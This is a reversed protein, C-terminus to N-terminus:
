GIIRREKYISLEREEMGLLQRFVYDNDEGLGPAPRWSASFNEPCKWPVRDSITRGLLPHEVEAFFSRARLHPDRALDGANQVVGAPVGAKQLLEVAEEPPFQRTWKEIGEDLEAANKQRKELTSFNEEKTWDLNRLVHCLSIWEEEHFVAIVCWRDVGLCRYVGYPAAPIYDAKNGRPLLDKQNVAIDLLTPGMTTCLAEFESLDIYEGQGTKERAELSILIMLTTHLAAAIDAYPFGLGLPNGREFSTIDTLGSYAQLTPALAVLDRLPGTHGFGSISVMIIRPNVKKFEEYGLGWNSIVRPSFNEVVVDSIKVLRLFIEKAEAYHMDLTVSRKNRNWTNFYGSLNDETGRSVRRSQVKIVESGFDALIRTALPGALVWSFDLIRLGRLLEIDM